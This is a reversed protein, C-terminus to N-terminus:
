GGRIQVYASCLSSFCVAVGRDAISSYLIRCHKASFVAHPQQCSWQTKTTKVYIRSHVLGRLPGWTCITVPLLQVTPEGHIYKNDPKTLNHVWCKGVDTAECVAASVAQTYACACSGFGFVVGHSHQHNSIRAQQQSCM